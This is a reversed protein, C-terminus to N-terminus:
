NKFKRATLKLAGSDFQELYFIVFKNDKDVTRYEIMRSDFKPVVRLEVLEFEQGAFLVRRSEFDVTLSKHTFASATMSCLLMLTMALKRM